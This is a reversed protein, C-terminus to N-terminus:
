SAAPAVAAADRPPRAPGLTMLNAWSRDRGRIREALVLDGNEDFAPHNPYNVALVRLTDNAATPLELKYQAEVLM